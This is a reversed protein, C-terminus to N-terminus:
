NCCYRIIGGVSDSVRRVFLQDVALVVSDVSGDVFFIGCVRVASLKVASLDANGGGVSGSVRSAGTDVALVIALM